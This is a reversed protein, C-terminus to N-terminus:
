SENNIIERFRWEFETSNQLFYHSIDLVLCIYDNALTIYDLSLGTDSMHIEISYVHSYRHRDKIFSM